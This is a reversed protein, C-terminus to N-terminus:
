RPASLYNVVNMLEPFDPLKDRNFSSWLAPAVDISGAAGLGVFQVTLIKTCDKGHVVHEAPSTLLEQLASEVSEQIEGLRRLSISASQCLTSLIGGDDVAVVGNRDAKIYRSLRMESVPLQLGLHVSAIRVAALFRAALHLSSVITEIDGRDIGFGLRLAAEINDRGLIYGEADRLDTVWANRPFEENLMRGNDADILGRIDAPHKEVEILFQKLRERNGGGDVYVEVADIPVVISNIDRTPGLVWYLFARDRVGEVYLERREADFVHASLIAAVPRRLM